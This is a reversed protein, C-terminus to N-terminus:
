CEDHRVCAPTAPPAVRPRIARADGALATQAAAREADPAGAGERAARGAVCVRVREAQALAQLERTAHVAPAAHAERAHRLRRARQLLLQPAHAARQLARLTRTDAVGLLPALEEVVHLAHEAHGRVKGTSMHKKAALLQGTLFNVTKVPM